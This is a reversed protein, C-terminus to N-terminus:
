HTGATQPDARDHRPRTSHGGSGAAAAIEQQGLRITAASTGGGSRAGGANTRSESPRRSHEALDVLGEERARRLWKYGTKRSIGFARCIAAVEAGPQRARVVFELRETRVDTEKWPM